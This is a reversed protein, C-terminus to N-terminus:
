KTEGTKPEIRPTFISSVLDKIDGYTKGAKLLSKIMSEVTELRDLDGSNLKERFPKGNAPKKFTIGILKYTLKASSCIILIHV